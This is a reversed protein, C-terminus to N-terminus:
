ARRSPCRDAVGGATRDDSLHVRQEVLIRSLRCLPYWRISAIRPNCLWSRRDNSPTFGQHHKPEVTEPYTWVHVLNRTDRGDIGYQARGACM